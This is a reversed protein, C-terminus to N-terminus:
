FEEQIGVRCLEGLRGLRALGELGDIQGLGDFIMSQVIQMTQRAYCSLYETLILLYVYRQIKMQISVNGDNM